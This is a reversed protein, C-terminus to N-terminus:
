PHLRGMLCGIGSFVLGVFLLPLLEHSLFLDVLDQPLDPSVLLSDDLKDEAISFDTIGESHEEQSGNEHGWAPEPRFALHSVIFVQM